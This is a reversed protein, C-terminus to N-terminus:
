VLVMMIHIIVSTINKQKKLVIHDAKLQLAFKQKVHIGIMKLIVNPKIINLVQQM